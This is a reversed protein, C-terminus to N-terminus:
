MFFVTFDSLGSLGFVNFAAFYLLILGLLCVVDRSWWFLFLVFSDFAYFYMM